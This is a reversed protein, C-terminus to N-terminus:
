VYIDVLRGSAPKTQVIEGKGSYTSKVRGPEYGMYVIGNHGNREQSFPGPSSLGVSAVPAPFASVPILSTGTQIVM